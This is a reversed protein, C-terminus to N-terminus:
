IWIWITKKWRDMEMAKAKKQRLPRRPRRSRRTTEVDTDSVSVIGVRHNDSNVVKTKPVIHAKYDQSAAPTCKDLTSTLKFVDPGARSGGIYYGHSPSQASSLL